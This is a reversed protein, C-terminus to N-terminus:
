VPGITIESGNAKAKWGGRTEEPRPNTVKWKTESRSDLWVVISDLPPAGYAEKVFIAVSEGTFHVETIQGMDIEIMLKLPGVYVRKRVADKPVIAVKGKLQKLIGGYAVFGMEHKQAVYTGGNLAMGLFAGGYDGTSGDWKMTDPWAHFGTSPFGEQNINAIPALAGGYGVQILHLDEPNDRFADLLM